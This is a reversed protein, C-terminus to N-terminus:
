HPDCYAIWFVAVEREFCTQGTSPGLHGREDLKLSIRSLSSSCAPCDAIWEQEVQHGGRERSESQCFVTENLSYRRFAIIAFNM